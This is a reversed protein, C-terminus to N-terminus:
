MLLAYCSALSPHPRNERDMSGWKCPSKEPTVLALHSTLYTTLASSSWVSAYVLKHVSEFAETM